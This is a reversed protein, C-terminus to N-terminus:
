PPDALGDWWTGNARFNVGNKLCQYLLALEQIDETIKVPENDSRDEPGPGSGGSDRSWIKEAAVPGIM